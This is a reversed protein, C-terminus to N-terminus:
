NRLMSVELLSKLVPRGAAGGGNDWAIVGAAGRYGNMAAVADRLGARSPGSKQFCVMLLNAADFGYDACADPSAGYKERYSDYFRLYEETPNQDDFPHVLKIQGSYAELLNEENLGPMWMLYVPCVVNENKLACLMPALRDPTLRMVIGGPSFEKARMAIELSDGNPTLQLHFIPPAAERQLAASLAEAAIRGDHRTSTIMGIREIKDRKIGDKVLIEAQRSDNPPLRFIWPIRIYTLTPDSSIPAILPAKLKTVIQEAIHTSDGDISGIVAWVNDEILFRIMEKSGASWPNDSWRPILRFPVGGYGGRRNAQELALAAGKWLSEGISGDQTPAFFGFRIEDLKAPNDKQSDVGTFQLPDDLMRKHPIPDNEAAWLVVGGMFLFVAGCRLAM